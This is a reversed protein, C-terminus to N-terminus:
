RKRPGKRGEDGPASKLAAARTALRGATPGKTIAVETVEAIAADVAQLLEEAIRKVDSHIACYDGCYDGYLLDCNCGREELLALNEKIKERLNNQATQEGGEGHDAGGEGHDADRTGETNALTMIGGDRDALNMSGGGSRRLCLATYLEGETNALKM